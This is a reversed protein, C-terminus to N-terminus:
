RISRLTSFLKILYIFKCFNGDCDCFVHVQETYYRIRFEIISFKSYQEIDSFLNHIDAIKKVDLIHCLSSLRINEIIDFLSFIIFKFRMYVAEDEVGM